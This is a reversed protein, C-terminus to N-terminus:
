LLGEEPDFLRRLQSADLRVPQGSLYGRLVQMKILWLQMCQENRARLEEPTRYFPFENLNKANRLDRMVVEWSGDPHIVIQYPDHFPLQLNSATARETYERVKTEVAEFQGRGTLAVFHPDIDPRPRERATRTYLDRALGTGYVESGDMKVEPVLLNGGPGRLYFPPVPLGADRFPRWNKSYGQYSRDDYSEVLPVTRGGVKVWTLRRREDMLEPLMETKAVEIAALDPADGGARRRHLALARNASPDDKLGNEVRLLYIGLKTRAAAHLRRSEEMHRVASGIVAALESADPEQEALLAHAAHLHALGTELEPKGLEEKITAIYTFPGETAM